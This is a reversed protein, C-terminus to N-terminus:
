RTCSEPLGIVFSAVAAARQWPQGETEELHALAAQNSDGELLSGTLRLAAVDVMRQRWAAPDGGQRHMPGPLVSAPAWSVQKLLSWRQLLGNTDAWDADGDPYGDPTSRGFFEMGSRVLFGDIAWDLEYAGTTRSLRIAWDLPDATKPLAEFMRPHRGLALLVARMDGGEELFVRTLDDVLDDPAPSAVYCESLKRAVHRATSPHAAALEFVLAVNEHREEPARGEFTLGLVERDIGSGLLPDYRLERTLEFGAGDLPAEESLTLGCLVHALTTVDGQDYGGEVGLSHLELLERAYNENIRAAVSEQQDLFYLMAPSTGSTLLLESFATPGLERFRAHERWEERPRSKQIWTSFHDDVWALFRARM